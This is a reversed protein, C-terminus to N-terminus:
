MKALLQLGSVGQQVEDVARIVDVAKDALQREKERLQLGAVKQGLHKLVGIAALREFRVRLMKVACIGLMVEAKFRRQASDHLAAGLLVGWIGFRRTLKQEAAIAQEGAGTCIPSTEETEDMLGSVLGVHPISYSDSRGQQLCLSIWLALTTHNKKM